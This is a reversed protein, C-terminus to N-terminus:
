SNNSVYDQLKEIITSYVDFKGYSSVNIVRYEEPQNEIFDLNILLHNSSINPLFRSGWEAVVIGNEDDLYEAFMERDEDTLHELRYFDMHYIVLSSTARRYENVLSFAPSTVSDPDVGLAGSILGKALVTKGCGLVGDLAVVDGKKLLSGIKEGLNETQRSSKSIYTIM